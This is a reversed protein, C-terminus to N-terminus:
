NPSEDETNSMLTMTKLEELELGLSEWLQSLENVREQTKRHTQITEYAEKQNLYLSADSLRQNLDDLAQTAESL